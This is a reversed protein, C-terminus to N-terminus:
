LSKLKAWFRESISLDDLLWVKGIFYFMSMEPNVVAKHSIAFCMVRLNPGHFLSFM